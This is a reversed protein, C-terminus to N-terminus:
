KFNYSFTKKTVDNTTIFFFVDMALFVKKRYRRLLFRTHNLPRVINEFIHSIPWGAHYAVAGHGEKLTHITHLKTHQVIFSLYIPM